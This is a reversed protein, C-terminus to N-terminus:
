DKPNVLRGLFLIVNPTTQRILFIFPHDARFTIASRMGKTETVASSAAAAETGRENVEIMAEQVVDSIFLDRKGDIGSFDASHDSFPETLGLSKLSEVLGLKSRFKFRPLDIDLEQKSMGYILEDINKKSLTNEANALGGREKPLLVIMSLRSGKYPLELAQFTDTETYNFKGSQRMMAATVQKGDLLTFQADETDGRDFTHAWAGKFYVTNGLLMRTQPTLVGDALLEKFKGKTQREFWSNMLRRASEPDREFSVSHILGRHYKEAVTLYDKRINSGKACWLSNVIKLDYGRSKSGAILSDNIHRFITHFQNGTISLHLVDEMQVKTTGRSGAYALALSSSIGYPSFVLNGERNRMREYIQLAFANAASAVSQSDKDTVAARVVAVPNIFVSLLLMLLLPMRNM